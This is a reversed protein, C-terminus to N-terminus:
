ELNVRKLQVTHGGTNNDTDTIYFFRVEGNSNFYVESATTLQQTMNKNTRSDVYNVGLSSITNGNGDTATGTATAVYTTDADVFHTKVLGNGNGLNYENADLVIEEGHTVVEGCFKATISILDLQENSGTRGLGLNIKGNNLETFYRDDNLNMRMETRGANVSGGNAGNSNELIGSISQNEATPNALTATVSFSRPNLIEDHGFDFLFQHINNWSSSNYDISLPQNFELTQSIWESNDSDNTYCAAHVNCTFLLALIFQFFLKM